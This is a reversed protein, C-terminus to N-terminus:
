NLETDSDFCGIAFKSLNVCSIANVKCSNCLSM